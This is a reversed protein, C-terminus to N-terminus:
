LDKFLLQLSSETKAFNKFLVKSPNVKWYIQLNDAQLKVLVPSRLPIKKDKKQSFKQGYESKGGSGTKGKCIKWVYFKVRM